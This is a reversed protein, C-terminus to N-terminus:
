EKKEDAYFQFLMPMLAHSDLTYLFDKNRENFIALLRYYAEETLGYEQMIKGKVEPSNVMQIYDKAHDNEREVELLRKRAQAEKKFGSGPMKFVYGPGFTQIGQFGPTQTFADSNTTNKWPTNWRVGGQWDSPKEEEIEVAQLMRNEEKLFIIVMERVRSVPLERTVYGVRSFVLTDGDSARLTFGGRMDSSTGHDGKKTTINVSPLAMMSASDAVMGTLLIQGQCTGGVATLLIIGILLAPIRSNM